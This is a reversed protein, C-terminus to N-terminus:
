RSRPGPPGPAPGPAVLEADARLKAMARSVTSKVTGASVGLAQAIEAESRDEYYRLLVVAQMRHPLRGIARHLADLRDSDAPPEAAPRDPVEDTPYEEVRRRRWGSIHTNVMTRRVYGDLAARDNIRDWALYTKALVSQVLDEADAPNGTLLCANRLLAPRRAAVFERFGRDEGDPRVGPRLHDGEM